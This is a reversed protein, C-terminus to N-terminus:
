RLVVEAFLPRHDSGKAPLVEAHRVGTGPRCWIYDLRLVPLGRPITWGFGMGAAGFASAMVENLRGFHKGRPPGNFDGCLFVPVEKPLMRVENLLAEIQRDRIRGASRLHDPLSGLDAFFFRDWQVPNLHVSAVVFTRGDPRELEAFLAWAHTPVQFEPKWVRRARWKAALALGRERHVLYGDRELERLPGIAQSDEGLTACEQLAAVDPGAKRLTQLLERADGVGRQLNYTLIRVAAPSDGSAGAINLAPADLHASILGAALAFGAARLRRAFLCIGLMMGSLIMWPLQPVYTLFMTFWSDEAVFIILVYDLLVVLLLAISATDLWRAKRFARGPNPRDGVLESSPGFPLL